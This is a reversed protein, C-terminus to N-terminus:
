GPPADRQGSELRTDISSSSWRKRRSRWGIAGVGVLGVAGIAAGTAVPPSSAAGGIEAQTTSADGASLPALRASYVLSGLAAIFDQADGPSVGTTLAAVVRPGEPTQIIGADHTTGVLDGTKHAVVTGFPLDRPLRDNIHQRELRALMRGSANPSLLRQEVLATFFTGLAQATVLNDEDPSEAVRFGSMGQARLTVNIKDPGLLRMFALAAGNDSHTIMSELADDVAMVTGPPEDSGDITVDADEITITDGYSLTGAEVLSEVHLLVALKYLSAAVVPTDADHVYLPQPQTPDSIWIAAQGGFGGVLPGVSSTFADAARPPQTAPGPDVAAATPLAPTVLAVVLVVVIIAVALLGVAQWFKM